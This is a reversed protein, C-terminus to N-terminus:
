ETSLAEILENGAAQSRKNLAEDSFLAEIAELSADPRALVARIDNESASIHADARLGLAEGAETADLSTAQAYGNVSAALAEVVFARHNAYFGSLWDSFAEPAGRKFAKGAMELVDRRERKLIRTTADVFLPTFADRIIPVVSTANNDSGKSKDL